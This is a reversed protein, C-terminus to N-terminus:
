SMSVPGFILQPDGKGCSREVAFAQKLAGDIVVIIAAPQGNFSALDVSVADADSEGLTTVCETVGDATGLAGADPPAAVGSAMSPGPSDLLSQALVALNANTYVRTSLEVHVKQAPNHDVGDVGSGDQTGAQASASISASVGAGSRSIMGVGVSLAAVTAAAAGLAFWRRQVGGRGLTIVRAGPQRGDQGSTVGDEDLSSTAEPSGLLWADGDDPVDPVAAPHELAALRAYLRESVTGPMPGPDPLAALLARVGTPDMDEDPRDALTM